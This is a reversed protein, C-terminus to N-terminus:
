CSKANVRAHNLIQGWDERARVHTLINDMVNWVQSVLLEVSAAIILEIHYWIHYHNAKQHCFFIILRTVKYPPAPSRHIISDTRQKESQFINKPYFGELARELGVMWEIRSFEMRFPPQLVM